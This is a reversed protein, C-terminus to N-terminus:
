EEMWPMMARLKKGIEEIPHKDHEQRLANFVPRGKKNEDIWEQAFKGSQVDKLIRKM